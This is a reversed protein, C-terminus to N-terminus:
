WSQKSMTHPWCATRVPAAGVGLVLEQHDRRDGGLTSVVTGSCAAPFSTLRSAAILPKQAIRTPRCRAGGGKTSGPWPSGTAESGRVLAVTQDALGTFPLMDSGLCADSSTVVGVTRVSPRIVGSPADHRGFGGLSSGTCQVRGGEGETRAVALWAYAHRILHRMTDTM